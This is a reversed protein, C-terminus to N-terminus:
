LPQLRHSNPLNLMILHCPSCLDEIKLKKALLSLTLTIAVLPLFHCCCSPPLSPSLLLSLKVATIVLLHSHHHCYHSSIVTILPLSLSSLFHCHHSSTVTILPLSLSSLSSSLLLLLHCHSPSSLLS